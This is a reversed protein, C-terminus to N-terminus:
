NPVNLLHRLCNLHWDQRVCGLSFDVLHLPRGSWCLDVPDAYAVSSAHFDKTHLDDAQTHKMIITLQTCGRM